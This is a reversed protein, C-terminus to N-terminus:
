YLHKAKNANHEENSVSYIVEGTDLTTLYFWYDSDEPNITAKLAPLGPNSIPGPPLGANKRTNYPSEEQLDFYDIENDEKLYLLTADAGVVWANDLRKWLIGAVVPIDKSTRVEREVISAMIVIDSLDREPEQGNLAEAIKNEFNNLMLQILNESYFDHADIFYTDPFLYGELPYILDSIKEEDLFAYKDFDSFDNVAQIFESPEIIGEETLKKDIDTVKYGEPITVVSEPREKDTLIDVIEPVNLTQNLMFRGAVIEKDKNSLRLFIKFAGEDLILDKEYLNQAIASASEGKKIILSVNTDNKPDVPSNILNQYNSYLGWAGSALLILLILFVLKYNRRKRM